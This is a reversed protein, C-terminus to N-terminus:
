CLTSQSLTRANSALFDPMGSSTVRSPVSLLSYLEGDLDILSDDCSFSNEASLAENGTAIVTNYSENEERLVFTKAWTM